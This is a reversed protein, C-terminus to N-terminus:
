IPFLKIARVSTKQFGESDVRDDINGLPSYQTRVRKVLITVLGKPTFNTVTGLRVGIVGSNETTYGYTKGIIIKNGLADTLTEAM